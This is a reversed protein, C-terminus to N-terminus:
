LIKCLIISFMEITSFILSVEEEQHNEFYGDIFSFPVDSGILDYPPYLAKTATQYTILYNDM